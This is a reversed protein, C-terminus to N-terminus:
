HACIWIHYCQPLIEILAVMRMVLLRDLGYVVSEGGAKM